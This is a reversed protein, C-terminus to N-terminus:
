FIKQLGLVSAKGVKGLPDPMHELAWARIRSHPPALVLTDTSASMGDFKVLLKEYM